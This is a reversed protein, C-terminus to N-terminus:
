EYREATDYAMLSVEEGKWAGVKTIKNDLSSTRIISALKSSGNLERLLVSIAVCDLNFSSCIDNSIDDLADLLDHRLTLVLDSLHNINRNILVPGKDATPTLCLALRLALEGDRDINRALSSALGADLNCSTWLVNLGGLSIKLAKDLRLLSLSYKNRAVDMMCQRIAALEEALKAIVVLDSDIV